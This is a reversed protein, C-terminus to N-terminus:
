AVSAIYNLANVIAIYNCQLNCHLGFLTGEWSAVTSGSRSLNFKPAGSFRFATPRQQSKSKPLMPCTIPPRQLQPHLPQCPISSFWSTKNKPPPTPPQGFWDLGLSFKIHTQRLSSCGGWFLHQTKGQSARLGFVM